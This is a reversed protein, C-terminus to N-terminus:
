KSVHRSYKIWFRFPKDVWDEAYEVGIRPGSDIKSKYIERGKAIWLCPSTFLDEGDFDKDIKLWATLKGPGCAIKGKGGVLPKLSRVL